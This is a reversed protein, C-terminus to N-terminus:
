ESSECSLGPAPDVRSIFLTFVSFSGNAIVNNANLHVDFSDAATMSINGFDILGTSDNAAITLAQDFFIETAGTVVLSALKDTAGIDTSFAVQDASTLEVNGAGEIGGVDITGTGSTVIEIDGAANIVGHSEFHKNASVTVISASVSFLVDPDSVHANDLLAVTVDSGGDVGATVHDAKLDLDGHSTAGDTEFVYNAVVGGSTSSDVYVLMDDGASLAADDIDFLFYYNEDSTTTFTDIVSGNQALKIDAGTLAVNGAFGMLNEFTLRPTIFGDGVVMSWDPTGGTFNFGAFSAEVKMDNAVLGDINTADNAGNRVGCDTCASVAQFYAGSISGPTAYNTGIFSDEATYANTITADTNVVGFMGGGLDFDTNFTVSGTSYVNTLANSGQLRGAFGGITGTTGTVTATTYVNEIIAGDIVGAVGGLNNSSGSVTGASYANTLTSGQYRGILGGVDTGGVVDGLAYVDQTPGNSGLEGPDASFAILGGARSVATVDGTAYSNYVYGHSFGLLGGASGGTATVNGTAYVYELVSPTKHEGILGGVSTDGIVEATSYVNYIHSSNTTEGALAGVM